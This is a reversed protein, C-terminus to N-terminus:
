KTVGVQKLMWAVEFARDKLADYRGSAGGHGAPQMKTKLVLPNADTKLTRLKAVYKAPEWYMVQSDNYSTTVLLAPYAKRALNDYPSYSLMYDFAPKENPNGWELYEGITLPLSADMMTNIVDVFPVAAHAARFLDPRENVVAGVLLGGASGGEILLRDAATWKEQVLHLACDVFDFFTNKKKMLMGDDHWAEGMEDGGRIHAIAFPIGRELLSLRKSDFTAGMGFGYSGYAYLWLPARGDRVLGKPYVISIPVKVGDRAVAWLRESAYRQPDYGGLVQERKLLRSEGKQMDYDYVSSPTILSQYSYRLLTSEYEPTGAAFASYVPEPFAVEKWAGSAFGHVRLRNLGAQKEQVVVYDKFVEFDQLLVSSRHEVFSKWRGPAPDELPATVLRFNKADKNTRIFLTGDRHEVDYKHGKERPLVIRFRGEPTASPLLSRDWTDTSRSGLVVFKRDKTRFVGISFLEDKEEHLKVPQGAAGLRWLTDPRKTVADETVYFFSRNDAAWAASTVREALPGRVAGTRLDKVFLSYQRFGTADTSYLLQQDDDSVEFEGISLFALGKAMENQDLLVQEPADERHSGDDAAARRCRIPYQLGEVTRRYYYYRGQRTPVSLDTQQIRGLMETYLSDAFPQVDASTAKTYANEAELYTEVQPTGKERLWYYPDVFRQGHFVQVHDKRPAVPPAPAPSQGMLLIGGSCAAITAAARTKALAPM